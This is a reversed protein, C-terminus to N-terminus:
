AKSCLGMFSIDTATPLFNSLDPEDINMPPHMSPLRLLFDRMLIMAQNMREIEAPTVTTHYHDVFRDLGTSFGAAIAQQNATNLLSLQLARDKRMSEPDGPPHPDLNLRQCEEDPLEILFRPIEIDTTLIVEMTPTLHGLATLEETFAKVKTLRQQMSGRLRRLISDRRKTEAKDRRASWESWSDDSDEDMDFGQMKHERVELWDALHNIHDAVVPGGRIELWNTPDATSQAQPHDFEKKKEALPALWDSQYAKMRAEIAAPDMEGRGRLEDQAMKKLFSNTDNSFQQIAEQSSRYRESSTANTYYYAWVDTAAIIDGTNYRDGGYLHLQFDTLIGPRFTPAKQRIDTHLPLPLVGPRGIDEEDLHDFWKMPNEYSRAINLSEEAAEVGQDRELDQEALLDDRIRKETKEKWDRNREKEEQKLRGRIEERFRREFEELTNDEPRLLKMVPLPIDEIHSGLLNGELYECLTLVQQRLDLTEKLKRDVKTQMKCLEVRFRETLLVQHKTYTDVLNNYEQAPMSSEETKMLELVLNEKTFRTQQETKPTREAVMLAMKSVKKLIDRLNKNPLFAGANKIARNRLGCTKAVLVPMLESSAELDLNSLEEAICTSNFTDENTDLQDQLVSRISRLNQWLTDAHAETPTDYHITYRRNLKRSFFVQKRDVTVSDAINVEPGEMFKAPSQKEKGKKLPPREEDMTGTSQPGRKNQRAKEARIQGAKKKIPNVPRELGGLRPVRGAPPCPSSHESKTVVPCEIQQDVAEEPSVSAPASEQRRIHSRGRVSEVSTSMAEKSGSNEESLRSLNDQAIAEMRNGGFISNFYAAYGNPTPARMAEM